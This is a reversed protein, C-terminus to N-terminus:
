DPVPLNMKKLLAIYRPNDKLQNCQHLNTAVYSISLGKEEYAKELCDMAKETKGLFVYRRAKLPNTMAANGIGNGYKDHMRFMEEIAALHGKEHFANVVSAKAADNWRVKKEWSEIWKEYNGMYYYTILFNDWGFSFDPDISIAKETVEISAQYNGESRMVVGYLSLVLPKMPDLALGINAQHVAEDM